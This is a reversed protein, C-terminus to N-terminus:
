AKGGIPPDGLSPYTVTRLIQKCHPTACLRGGVRLGTTTKNRSPRPGFYASLGIRHQSM